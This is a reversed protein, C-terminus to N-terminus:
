GPPDEYVYGSLVRGALRLTAQVQERSVTPFDRLFEALSGESDLYDFLTTVKACTVSPPEASLRHSSGGEPKTYRIQDPRWPEEIRVSASEVLKESKTAKM